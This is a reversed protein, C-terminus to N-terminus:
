LKMKPETQKQYWQLFQVVAYYTKEILTGGILYAQPQNQDGPIGKTWFIWGTADNTSINFDVTTGNSGGKIETIGIKEVVPMLKNWDTHYKLNGMEYNDYKEDEHHKWGMFDAIIRNSEITTM